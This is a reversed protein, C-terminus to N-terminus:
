NKRLRAIYFGGFEGDPLVRITKTLSPDFSQKANSILGPLFNSREASAFPSFDIDEPSSDAFHSLLWDVVSENEESSYTCTSYILIGGPRLLSWTSALIGKQYSSLSNIKKPNWNSIGEESSLDIEAEGSCPVDVLIRDYYNQAELNRRVFGQVDTNLMRVFDAGLLKLNAQMKFFRQRSKELANIKGTNGLREAILSTKSGPAACADLVKQGESLDLALVPLISSPNQIYIKGENFEPTHSLSLGQPESLSIFTHELKGMDFRFGQQKLSELVPLIEARLLNVRFVRVKPHTHFDFIKEFHDPYLKKLKTKFKETKLSEAIM